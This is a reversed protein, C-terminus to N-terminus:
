FDLWKTYYVCTTPSILGGPTCERIRPCVGCPISVMAGAKLSQGLDGVPCRYCIKGIPIGHYEGIGTSKVDIIMNDLVLARLIESIQQSTCETRVVKNKKIFDYLGEDTVVKLKRIIKISTNKLVEIFDTDLEGDAYWAGGTVEESPEFDASIYHKRGKFQVHPVEKVLGSAQLNKLCKNFIPQPLKAEKKLDTVVIANEKRSKIINLVLRESEPLSAGAKPKPDPTKRKQLISSMILSSNSIFRVKNSPIPTLDSVQLLSASFSCGLASQPCRRRSPAPSPLLRSSPLTTSITSLRGTWGTPGHGPPLVPNIYVPEVVAGIKPIMIKLDKKHDVDIMSEKRLSQQEKHAEKELRKKEAEAQQANEDRAKKFM